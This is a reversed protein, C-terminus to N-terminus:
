VSFSLKNDFKFIFSTSNKTLSTIHNLLQNVSILPQHLNPVLLVNKLLIVTSSNNRVLVEGAATANMQQKVGGTFININVDRTKNFVSQDNVMHHSAGSDLIPNLGVSVDGVYPSVEAYEIKDEDDL